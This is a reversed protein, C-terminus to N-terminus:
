NKLRTIEKHVLNINVQAYTQETTKVSKHGGMKSTAEMSYGHNNLKDMMYIKRGSKVTLYINMGIERAVEKIAENFKPNSLIKMKYDYMELIEEAKESLPIIAENGNKHRPKILYKEGQHIVKHHRGVEFLDGYDFGTHMVLVFLHAAKQRLTSPSRYSEWKQIQAPTFYTPKKPALKPIVYSSLPNYEMMENNVGFDMATGCIDVCRAAYNHQYMKLLHELYKKALTVKFDTGKINTLNNEYLFESILIYKNNYGQITIESRRDFSNETTQHYKIYARFISLFTHKM